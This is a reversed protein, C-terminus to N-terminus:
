LKFAKQALWWVAAGALPIASGLFLIVGLGQNKVDRLASVEKKIESIEDRLQKIEAMLQGMLFQDMVRGTNM